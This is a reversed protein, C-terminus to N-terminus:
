DGFVVIRQWSAFVSFREHIGRDSVQHVNIPNPEPHIQRLVLRLFVSIVHRKDSHCRPCTPSRGNGDKHESAFLEGAQLASVVFGQALSYVFAARPISVGPVLTRFPRWFAVRKIKPM